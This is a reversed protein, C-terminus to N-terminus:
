TGGLARRFTLGSTSAYGGPGARGFYVVKDAQIHTYDYFGDSPDRKSLTAQSRTDTGKRTLSRSTSECTLSVKSDGGDEPTDIQCDDVFGVFYTVLPPILDRTAPDFMGVSVRIPAQAMSTGRILNNVEPDLGNMTVELGPITLDGKGSLPAIQIVPGSGHYLKSSITVDGIDNWFGAPSPLGTTPDVADCWIFYRLVLVRQALATRQPSTLALM